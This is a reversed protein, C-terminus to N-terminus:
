YLSIWLWLMVPGHGRSRTIQTVVGFGDADIACEVARKFRDLSRGRQGACRETHACPDPGISQVTWQIWSGREPRGIPAGNTAFM